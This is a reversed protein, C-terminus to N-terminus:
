NKSEYQMAELATKAIEAENWPYEGDAREITKEHGKGLLVVMDNEDAALTLALGIAEERNPIIHLGQTEEKGTSRVGEAIQNLIQTPDEDRNDEETIVVEDAYRAAIAGQQARKTEDRRGASGFVAILKGKVLPRVSTFFKEFGDPTSAFDIVVKFPQGADLTNMRGEVSKLAYIGNQIQEPTLGLKIGVALAALSNSVNFEGPIAVKMQYRDEGSVVTYESGESTLQLSTAKLDGQKIGYTTSNKVASTFKEANPDDANAIGYKFGHRNAIKFLERKAALYREFTGHYELHDHTINTMVAIEYPVGWVRHQALSHSSTEIVVWEVGAKAFSKLRKQLVSAKSTTMHVSPYTLDDGVGYAVTSMMAVKVGAEHLMKHIMFTTTTKGNTGTVGIVRLKKAPFGYAINMVVAEFFHGTPEIKRFVSSPIISKVLRRINM